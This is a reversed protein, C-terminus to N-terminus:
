KFALGMTKTIIFSAPAKGFRLMLAKLGTKLGSRFHSPQKHGFARYRAPKIKGKAEVFKEFSAVRNEFICIYEVDSIVHESQNDSYKRGIMNDAYPCVNEPVEIWWLPMAM